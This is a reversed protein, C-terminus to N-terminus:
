DMYRCILDTGHAYLDEFLETSLPNFHFDSAKNEKRIQLSLPRLPWTAHDRGHLRLAGPEFGSEVSSGYHKHAQHVNFRVHALRGEASTTRFNLSPPALESTTRTM